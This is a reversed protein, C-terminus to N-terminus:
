RLIVPSQRWDAGAARDKGEAYALVYFDEAAAGLEFVERARDPLERAAAPKTVLPVSSEEGIRRLLETGAADAALVRAYPPTGTAMGTRVGLAACMLMRRLRATPYRKTAALTLIEELSGAQRVARYLRRDLGESADPLMRFSEEPLFRLRSLLATELMHMSVPGRGERVERRFVATAEEPLFPSVDEGALMRTRLESASRHEADDTAPQDHCAGSRAVALPQMNLKLSIIAKFYEVALINNPSAILTATEAPLTKELARQRAAAYSVGMGLEERILTDVEPTLLTQALTQLTEVNGCETGFSMHTVVGLAGLLGACGRAFGEASSLSWPLPLELVLNAGCRVAAEARVHKRFIAPAGRQVFSGSMVCIVDADGLQARSETLHHLHGTHFPNYEAAIGIVKRM